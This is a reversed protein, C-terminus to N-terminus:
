ETKRLTGLGSIHQTIAPDGSYTVSGVGDITVDLTDLAQVNASGTGSVEVSVAGAALNSADLSGVGSVTLVLNATTGSLAVQGAGIVDARLADNAVGTVVIEGAGGLLVAILNPVTVTLVLPQVANFARTARVVLKGDSVNTEILPLVNDDGSLQLPQLEGISVEVRGAGLFEIQTFDGLPRSETAHTGSGLVRPLRVLGCGALLVGLLICPVVLVCRRAPM